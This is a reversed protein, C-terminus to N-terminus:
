KVKENDDSPLISSIGGGTQRVRKDANHFPVYALNTPQLLMCIHTASRSPYSSQFARNTPGTDPRQASYPLQYRRELQIFTDGASSSTMIANENDGEGRGRSECGKGRMLGGHGLWLWELPLEMGQGRNGSCAWGSCSLICRGRRCLGQM